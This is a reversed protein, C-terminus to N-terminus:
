SFASKGNLIYQIFEKLRKSARKSDRFTNLIAIVNPDRYNQDIVHQDFYGGLLHEAIDDTVENNDYFRSYVRCLKLYRDLDLTQLAFACIMVREKKVPQSTLTKMADDFYSTSHYFIERFSTDAFFEKYFNLSDCNKTVDNLLSDFSKKKYLSAEAVRATPKNSKNSCSSFM